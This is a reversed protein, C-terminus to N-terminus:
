CIRSPLNLSVPGLSGLALFILATLGFVGPGKPGLCDLLGLLCGLDWVPGFPGPPPRLTFLELSLPGLWGLAWHASVSSCPVITGFLGAAWHAWSGIPVLGLLTGTSVPLELLVSCGLLCLTYAPLCALMHTFALQPVSPGFLGLGFSDLARLGFVGPGKLGM